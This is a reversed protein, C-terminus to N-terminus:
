LISTYSNKLNTIISPFAECPTWCNPCQKQIVVERLRKAENSHLVKRLNFDSERLSGIKKDWITCPFVDGKESIYINASIAACNVPTKGTQIFEPLKNQYIKEVMDFPSFTNYGQKFFPKVLELNIRGEYQIKDNGYYHGSAHAFNLHLDKVGFGPIRQSIAEVTEPIFRHNYPFLTMGAESRIRKHSRVIKLAEVAEDFGGPVGRIKDHIAPPGDLSVNVGIVPISSHSLTTLVKELNSHNMGNTTFNIIKLNPCHKIYISVIENLDLRDTPEGGSLNLWLLNSHSNQALKEHESLTMENEPKEKWILCNSCRSGCSKTVVLFYKFPLDSTKINEKLIRSILKYWDYAKM